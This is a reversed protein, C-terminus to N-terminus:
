SGGMVRCRTLITRPAGRNPGGKFHDHDKVKGRLKYTQGEQLEEGGFAFWSLKNGEGDELQYVTQMYGSRSERYSVSTVKVESEIMAGVSGVHKSAPAPRSREEKLREYSPIVTALVGMDRASLDERQLLTLQQAEFPRLSGPPRSELDARVERLAERALEVQDRDPLDVEGGSIAEELREAARRATSLGGSEYAERGTVWGHQAQAQAAFPLMQEPSFSVQAKLRLSPDWGKSAEEKDAVRDILGLLREVYAATQEPTGQKIYEGVCTSGIRRVEGDPGEVLFVSKRRRDLRCHDCCPESLDTEQLQDSTLGPLRFCRPTGRSYDVHALYRWGDAPRVDGFALVLYEMQRRFSVGEGLPVEHSVSAEETLVPPINDCKMATKATREIFRRLEPLHESAVLFVRGGMETELALAEEERGQVRALRATELEQVRDQQMADLATIRCMNPDNGKGM